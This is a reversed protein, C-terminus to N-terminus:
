KTGEKLWADLAEIAERESEMVATTHIDAEGEFVVAYYGGDDPSYDVEAWRDGPLPITTM